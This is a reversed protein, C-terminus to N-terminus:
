WMVGTEPPQIRVGTSFRYLADGLSPRTPYGMAGGHDGYGEGVVGRTHNGWTNGNKIYTM